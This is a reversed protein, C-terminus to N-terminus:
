ALSSERIRGTTAGSTDLDLGLEAHDCDACLALLEPAGVQFGVLEDCSDCLDAYLWGRTRDYCLMTQGSGESIERDFDERLGPREDLKALAESLGRAHVAHASLINM